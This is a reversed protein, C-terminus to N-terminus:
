ARPCLAQRLMEQWYCNSRSNNSNLRTLLTVGRPLELPALPLLSAGVESM